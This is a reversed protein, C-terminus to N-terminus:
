RRKNNSRKQLNALLRAFRIEEEGEGGEKVGGPFGYAVHNEMEDFDEKVKKEEENAKGFFQLGEDNDREVEANKKYANKDPHYKLAEKRKKMKEIKEAKEREDMFALMRGRTAQDIKSLMSNVFKYFPMHIKSYKPVLIAENVGMSRLANQSHKQVFETLNGYYVFKRWGQVGLLLDLNEDNQLYSASDYFSIVENELLVMESIRPHREREEIKKGVSKDVVRVSFFSPSPNGNEDKAMIELKVKEGPSYNGEREITKIEYIIKKNPKVFVLREALPMGSSHLITFTYVGSSLSSPLPLSLSPSNPLM